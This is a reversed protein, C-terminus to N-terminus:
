HERGNRFYFKNIEGRAVEVLSGFDWKAYKGWFGCKSWQDTPYAAASLGHM